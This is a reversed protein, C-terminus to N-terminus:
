PPPAGWAHRGPSLRKYQQVMIIAKRVVGETIAPVDLAVLLPRGGPQPNGIEICNRPATCAAEQAYAELTLLRAQWVVPEGQLTGAFRLEVSPGGLPSLLEYDMSTAPNPSPRETVM